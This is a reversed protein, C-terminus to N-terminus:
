AIGALFDEEVLNFVSTEIETTWNDFTMNENNHVVSRVRYLTDKIPDYEPFKVIDDPQLDPQCLLIFDMGPISQDVAEYTILDTKGMVKEYKAKKKRRRKRKQLDINVIELITRREVDDADQIETPQPAGLIVAKYIEKVTPNQPAYISSIHIVGDNVFCYMGLDYVFSKLLTFAPGSFSRSLLTGTNPIAEMQVPMGIIDIFDQAITNLPTGAAYTKKDVYFSRHQKKQSTCNIETVHGPSLHQSIASNIEGKFAVVLDDVGAPTVSIEVPAKQASAQILQQRSNENLNYVSVLAENPEEDIDKEIFFVMELGEVAAERTEFNIETDGFVKLQMRPNVLYVKNQNPLSVM